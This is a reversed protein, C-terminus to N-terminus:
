RRRGTRSSSTTAQARARTARGGGEGGRARPPRRSAPRACIEGTDTKVNPHFIPTKFKVTPPKFPYESPFKMDLTFVGDAYPTEEPGTM